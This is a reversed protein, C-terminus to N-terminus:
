PDVEVELSGYSGDTMLPRVVNVYSLELVQYLFFRM